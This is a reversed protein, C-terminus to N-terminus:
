SAMEVNRRAAEQTFLDGPRCGLERTLACVAELSPSRRGSEYARIIETCRGIRAGLQTATLGAAERRKRLVFRDFQYSGM